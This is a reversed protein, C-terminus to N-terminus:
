SAGVILKESDTWNTTAENDLYQVSGVRWYYEGPPLGSISVHAVALATEDVMPTGTDSGSFLQFHYRQVGEGTGIWKFVYGADNKEASASVGNLRRKFAYATSLGRIGNDSIARARIFYNGNPLDTFSVKGGTARADAVQDVFGADSSIQVQYDRNEGGQGIAFSVLPNAQIKGPQDIVPPPLLAEKILTGQTSVALGNGAQLAIENDVTTNVALAGQDVEAFDYGDETHRMEFETGRVASVATPTRMRYQDNASKLKVVKSRAGGKIVDFDYDLSSGLLYTRLRSIRMNSNSPMSVRSGDELALTVFSSAATSLTAGEGVVQGTAARVLPIRGASFQVDGRVSLLRASAPRYKLLSRPISIVKGIPVRYPNTIRNQRLVVAYHQPKLMYRDALDILTDGKRIIYTVNDNNNDAAQAAPAFLGGTAVLATVFVSRVNQM